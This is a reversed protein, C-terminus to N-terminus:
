QQVYTVHVNVQPTNTTTFLVCVNQNATANQAITNGAGGDKIGGNAAFGAGNAATVGTNLYVGATTGGTCVSSGTGEILSVNAAASTIIALSCIYAKKGSAATIISGGSTTSEFDAISKAQFQCPDAATQNSALVVPISASATTSGLALASGGIQTLNAPLVTGGSVGQISVVGGAPTGATGAGVVVPQGSSNTSITRANTGDSGGVLVPNGSVASGTAAGGGVMAMGTAGAEKLRDYTTGNWLLPVGIISSASAYTTTAIADGPTIATITNDVTTHLSGASTVQLAVMQGSTLTPPSSLYEAGAATGATPFTASFNSSTGGSGSCGSDCVIHLNTGTAQTATVTFGSVGPSVLLEGRSTTLLSAQQTTTLTPQTSLYQAGIVLANTATATAAALPGIVSTQNAATAAGNLTGLNFTPTAAFAPLTGSIGFSSNSITFGDAGVAVFLAGRASLAVQGQQGNTLTEQTTNFQGGILLGKTATATNPSVPTQMNTLDVVAGSALSGSAYAGSAVQGSAISVARTGTGVNSTITGSIPQTTASADTRVAGATTLSCPDTQGNTYTPSGTTVACQALLGTQGSTTSAQAANTPQNASTAAGTPLSVTGAINNINNTAGTLQVAFTGANTVAGAITVATGNAATNALSVQVPTTSTGIETGSSNRLNTFLARNATVQFMGQQGNTLASNTATTQFFGGGGAFLSTGATFAAEDATSVGSGSCNACQVNLNGSTGTFAVFNGGQSFGGPTGLTPFSSGFTSSTGGSGGGAQIHVNLYGNSDLQFASQQTNSLTIPSSNFVGGVLESNSAATGAAVTGIVSTQNAATAAGNLTGLNATVTGSVTLTPATGINFTPTSAFAPLTGSIGFSTNGISGGAQFPSGLATILSTIRQAIRQEQQNISCSATDTSCAAAGPAGLNTVLGALNGGTELSYNTIAAPPTLTTLQAATLVIPVSNAAVQQGLTYPWFTGTVPLNVSSKINVWQGFSTDGLAPQFNGSADKFGTPTGVTGIAGGFTVSLGGGGGGSCGSDCIFHQATGFSPLAVGTGFQIAMPNALTAFPNGNQDVPSLSPLIKGNVLLSFTTNLVANPPAATPTAILYDAHAALPALALVSVLALVSLKKM